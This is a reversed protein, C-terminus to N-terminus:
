ARVPSFEAEGFTELYNEEIGLCVDRHVCKRCVPVQRKGSNTIEHILGARGDPLTMHDKRSNGAGCLEPDRTWDLMSGALEPAACPPFHILAPLPKSGAAKLRRFGERVFPVADAMKLKLLEKNEPLAGFGQYRLFYVIVDKIGLDRYFFEVTEPFARYNIANLVYNIGLDVKRERLTAVAKRINELAGPVAVLRDHLEPTHGHISFRFSDAGADVLLRAYAAKGLRVGNTTIQIEQFGV